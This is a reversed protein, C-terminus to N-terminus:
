NLIQEVLLEDNYVYTFTSDKIIKKFAVFVCVIVARERDSNLLTIIGNAGEHDRFILILVRRNEIQVM